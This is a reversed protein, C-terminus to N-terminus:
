YLKISGPGISINGKQKSDHTIESAPLLKVSMRLSAPSRGSGGSGSEAKEMLDIVASMQPNKWM